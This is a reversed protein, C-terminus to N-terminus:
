SWMPSVTPGKAVWIAIVTAAFIASLFSVLHKSSGHQKLKPGSHGAVLNHSAATHYGALTSSLFHSCATLEATCRGGAGGAAQDM